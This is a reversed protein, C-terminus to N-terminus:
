KPHTLQRRFRLKTTLLIPDTTTWGSPNRTLGSCSLLELADLVIYLLKKRTPSVIPMISHIELHHSPFKAQSLNVSTQNLSLILLKVAKPYIVQLKYLFNLESSHGHHHFKVCYCSGWPSTQRKRQPEWLCSHSRPLQETPWILQGRLIDATLSDGARGETWMGRQNWDKNGPSHLRNGKGAVM